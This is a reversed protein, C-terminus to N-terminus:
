AHKCVCSSGAGVPGCVAPRARHCHIRRPVEKMSSISMYGTVVWARCWERRGVSRLARVDCEVEVIPSIGSLNGKATRCHETPRQRLDLQEGLHQRMMADLKCHISHHVQDAPQGTASFGAPAEKITLSLERCLQERRLREGNKWAVHCSAPDVLLVATKGACASSLKARQQRLAERFVVDLYWLFLQSDYMHSKKSNRVTIVEPAYRENVLLLDKDSIHKNGYMVVLPGVEGSAFTCTMWTRSRRYTPAVDNRHNTHPHAPAPERGPMRRRRSRGSIEGQWVDFDRYSAGIENLQELAAMDQVAQAESSRWPGAWAGYKALAYARVGLSQRELQLDPRALTVDLAHGPHVHLGKARLDRVQRRWMEGVNATLEPVSESMLGRMEERMQVMQPDDFDLEKKSVHEIHPRLGEDRKFRQAFSVSGKGLILQNPERWRRQLEQKSIAGAQRVAFKFQM